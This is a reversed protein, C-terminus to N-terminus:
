AWYDEVTDFASIRRQSESWDKGKEQKFYWLCWNYRLPHKIARSVVEGDVAETAPRM